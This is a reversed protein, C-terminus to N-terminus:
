CSKIFMSEFTQQSVFLLFLNTKHKNMRMVVTMAFEFVYTASDCSPSFTGVKSENIMIVKTLYM